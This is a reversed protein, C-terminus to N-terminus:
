GLGCTCDKEPINKYMKLQLLRMKESEDESKMEVARIKEQDVIILGSHIKAISKLNNKV